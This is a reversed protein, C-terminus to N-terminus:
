ETTIGNSSSVVVDTDTDTSSLTIEYASGSNNDGTTDIGVTISGDDSLTTNDLHANLGGITTEGGDFTPYNGDDAMSREREMANRITSATSKLAGLAAEGRVGTIQPVAVGAIIGLVAVVLMLEILTFGAESSKVKDLIIKLM